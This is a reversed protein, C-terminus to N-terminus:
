GIGWLGDSGTLVPFESYPVTTLGAMVEYSTKTTSHDSLVYLKTCRCEIYLPGSGSVLAEVTMYKKGTGSQDHTEGATIGKVGLATFGVRLLAPGTNQIKVWQTVHSFRVEIATGGSVPVENAASGTVFPTGSVQYEATNNWSSKPHNLAM